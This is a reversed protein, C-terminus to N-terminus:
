SVARASQADSLDNVAGHDLVWAPIVSAFTAFALLVLATAILASYNGAGVLFSFLLPGSALGM